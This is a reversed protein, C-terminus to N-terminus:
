RSDVLSEGPQSLVPLTGPWDPHEERFKRQKRAIERVAELKVRYEKVFREYAEAKAYQGRIEVDLVLGRERENRAFERWSRHLSGQWFLTLIGACVVAQLAVNM